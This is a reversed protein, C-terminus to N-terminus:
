KLAINMKLRIKMPFLNFLLFLRNPFLKQTQSFLLTFNFQISTMIIQMNQM